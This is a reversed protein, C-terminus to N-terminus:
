LSSLIYISLCIAILNLSLEYRKSDNFYACTGNPTNSCSCGQQPCVNPNVRTDLNYGICHYCTLYNEPDYKNKVALM